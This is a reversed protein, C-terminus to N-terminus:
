SISNKAYVYAVPERTAYVHAVPERTAYHIWTHKCYYINHMLAVAIAEDDIHIVDNIHFEHM